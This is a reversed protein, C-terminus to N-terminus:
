CEAEKPRWSRYADDYKATLTNGSKAFPVFALRRFSFPLLDSITNLALYQM